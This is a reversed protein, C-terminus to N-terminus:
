WVFINKCRSVDVRMLDLVMALINKSILILMKLCSLLGLRFIKTAYLRSWCYIVPFKDWAIFTNVPQKHLFIVKGQKLFSGDFKERIRTNDFYNIFASFSNDSTSPTKISKDPLGKSNWLTVKSTNAVTKFYRSSVSRSM